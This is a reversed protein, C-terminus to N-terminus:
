STDVGSAPMTCGPRSPPLERSVIRTGGCRPCCAAKAETIIGEAPVSATFAGPVGEAYLLFRCVRLRDERHKNALLGYHRIKVFRKPLEHQM